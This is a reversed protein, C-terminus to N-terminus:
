LKKNHGGYISSSLIGKLRRTVRSYIIRAEHCAKRRSMGLNNKLFDLAKYVKEEEYDRKPPM